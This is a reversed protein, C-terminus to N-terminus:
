RTWPVEPLQLDAVLEDPFTCDAPVPQLNIKDMPAGPNFINYTNRSIEAVLPFSEDSSLWKRNHLIAVLM